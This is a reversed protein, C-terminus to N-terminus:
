SNHTLPRAVAVELDQLIRFWRPLLPGLVACPAVLFPSFPPAITASAGVARRTSAASTGLGGAIWPTRVTAKLVWEAWPSVNASVAFLGLRSSPPLVVM